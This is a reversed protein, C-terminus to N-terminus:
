GARFQIAKVQAANLADQAPTLIINLKYLLDPLSPLVVAVTTQLYHKSVL